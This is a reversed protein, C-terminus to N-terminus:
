MDSLQARVSEVAKALSLRTSQSAPDVNAAMLRDLLTRRYAELQPIQDRREAGFVFYMQECTVHTQFPLRALAEIVPVPSACLITATMPVWGFVSEGDWTERSLGQMLDQPFQRSWFSCLRRPEATGGPPLARLIRAVLRRQEATTGVGELRARIGSALLASEPAPRSQFSLRRVSLLWPDLGPHNAADAVAQVPCLWLAYLVRDSSRKLSTVREPSDEAHSGGAESLARSYDRDFWPVIISGHCLVALTQKPPLGPAEAAARGCTASVPQGLASAQASAQSGARTGQQASLLTVITLLTSSVRRVSRLRGSKM